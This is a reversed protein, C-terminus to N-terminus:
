GSYAARKRRDEAVVSVILIAIGICMFNVPSRHALSLAFSYLFAVEIYRGKGFFGLYRFCVLHVFLYLLSGLMGQEVLLKTLNSQPSIGDAPLVGSALNSSHVSGIGSGFLALHFDYSSFREFFTTIPALNPLQGRYVAPIVSYDSTLISQIVDKLGSFYDLLRSSEFFGFFPISLSILGLGISSLINRISLFRMLFFALFLCLGVIFSFSQTMLTALFLILFRNRVGRRTISGFHHRVMDVAILFGIVVAADRPEGFLGHFRVGVDRGDRFHRGILDFGQFRALFDVFGILISAWLFFSIIKLFKQLSHETKVLLAPFICFVSIQYFLLFLEILPRPSEIELFYILTVSTQFVLLAILYLVLNATSRSLTPPAAMLTLILFPILFAQLIRGIHITVQGTGFSFYLYLESVFCLAIVAIITDNSYAFKTPNKTGEDMTKIM